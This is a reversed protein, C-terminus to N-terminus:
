KMRKNITKNIEGKPLKLFSKDSEPYLAGFATKKDMFENLVDNLTILTNNSRTIQM